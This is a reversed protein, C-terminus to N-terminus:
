GRYAVLVAGAAILAVGLWNAGSLREGLFIAGFVAVLVVSLKDIPAVQAANGIKLARFYCLWSAGTALGSLGLFLWTKASITAPSQFQGSALLIAGLVALIIVTRIFTAFDSSINEIGVKAFIATLAAFAASLLAWLQWSSFTLNM